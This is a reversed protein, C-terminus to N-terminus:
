IDGQQSTQEDRPNIIQDIAIATLLILGKIANQATFQINM